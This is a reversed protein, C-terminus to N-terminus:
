QVLTAQGAALQWTGTGTKRWVRTYVITDEVPKGWDGCIVATTVAVASDGFLRVEQERYEISTLTFLKERHAKLDDAKGMRQGFHNIFILDDAELADLVPVDSNLMALRLQEEYQSIANM